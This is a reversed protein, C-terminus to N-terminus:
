SSEPLIEADPECPVLREFDSHFIYDEGAVSVVVRYGDIQVEQYTQDEVPCGLSSDDWVMPTIDKLQIRRTPLDFRTALLRQALAAMEAAIPDILILIDADVDDVPMQQCLRVNVGTDTHYIYVIGDGILIIEYGSIEGTGPVRPPEPCDFTPTRWRAEAFHAVELINPAIDTSSELDSVVLLLFKRIEADNSLITNARVLDSPAVIPEPTDTPPLIEPTFTVTPPILTQTPIATIDEDSSCSVFVVALCIIVTTKTIKHYNDFNAWWNPSNVKWM